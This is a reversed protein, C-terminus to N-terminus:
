ETHDQQKEDFNILLPFINSILFVLLCESTAGLPLIATNTGKMICTAEMIESAIGWVCCGHFKSPLEIVRVTGNEWEWSGHINHKDTQEVYTDYTIDTVLEYPLSSLLYCSTNIILEYFLWNDFYISIFSVNSEGM